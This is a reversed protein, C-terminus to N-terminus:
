GMIEELCALENLDEEFEEIQEPTKGLIRLLDSYKTPIRSRGPDKWEPFLIPNHHEDFLQRPTKDKNEEYIEEVLGIEARSLKEIGCEKILRITDNYTRLYEGWFSRAPQNQPEALDLTKSVVQGYPLSYLDDYIVPRLWRKLAEREIGYILKICKAYDMEGGSLKLLLATVQTAKTENYLNRRARFLRKVIDTKKM